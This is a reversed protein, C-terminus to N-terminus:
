PFEPDRYKVTYTAVADPELSRQFPEGCVLAEQGMARQALVSLFAACILRLPRLRSSRAHDKTSRKNGQSLVGGGDGVGNLLRADSSRRASSGVKKATPHHWM